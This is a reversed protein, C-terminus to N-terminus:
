TRSLMMYVDDEPNVAGGDYLGLAGTEAFGAERIESAIADPDFYQMWNCVEHSGEATVIRFRDLGLKMQPYLFSANLVFHDDAAWFGGAPHHEISQSESRRDFCVPAFIDCVFVGGPKLSKRIKQMLRHRNEPSLPCLDGYILMVIDQDAPLPDKLYDAQRYTIALREAETHKRAHALSNESFDLGTVTGGRRTIPEAYLGPGCGLDTVAKGAFGLRDDLGTVISAIQDSRRSALESDPDLHCTLMQKARHPDTWLSDITYVSFPAPREFFTKLETYM